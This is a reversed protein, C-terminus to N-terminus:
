ASTCQTSEGEGGGEVWKEDEGGEPAREETVSEGEEKGMKKGEKKRERKQNPTLERGGKRGWRKARGYNIKADRTCHFRRLKM